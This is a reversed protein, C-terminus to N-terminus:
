KMESTADQVDSVITKVTGPLKLLRSHVNDVGNNWWNAARHAIQAEFTEKQLFVFTLLVNCHLNTATSVVVPAAERERRRYSPSLQEIEEAHKDASKWIARHLVFGGGCAALFGSVGSLIVDRM